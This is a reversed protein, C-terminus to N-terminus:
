LRRALPRHSGAPRATASLGIRVLEGVPETEAFVGPAIKIKAPEGRGRTATDGRRREEELRELVLSLFVGRKAGALAHVEDVIVLRVGSFIGRAATTLMLNLSEPTTILIHPPRRIMAARDKQPTDGTRVAIHIEPWDSEDMEAAVDTLEELPKLLNKQVDNALAKLPSVYLIQVGHLPSASAAVRLRPSAAIKTHGNKARDGHRPTGTDTEAM